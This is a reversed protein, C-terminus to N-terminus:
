YKYNCFRCLCHHANRCCTTEGNSQGLAIMTHKGDNVRTIKETVDIGLNINRIIKKINHFFIGFGIALVIAFLVNDLYSM